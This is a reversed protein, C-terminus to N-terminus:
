ASSRRSPSRAWRGPAPSLANLLETMEDAPVDVGLVQSVRAVRLEVIRDQPLRAGQSLVGAALEGGSVECLLQVARRAAYDITRPDIGREFRYAADTRINLRRGTNRITVPDWTAM